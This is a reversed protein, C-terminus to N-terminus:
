KKKIIRKVRKKTDAKSTVDSVRGTFGTYPSSSKNKIGFSCVKKKSGDKMTAHINVAAGSSEASYHRVNKHINDFDTTPNSVKSVGRKADYSARYPKITPQEEADIMRRIFGTKHEHSIKNFSDSYHDALQRHYSKSSDLARHAAARGSGRSVALAKFKAHKDKRSGTGVHAAVHLDVEADHQKILNQVHTHDAHLHKNLDAIGPSRLSPSSGSNSYKLSVGHYHSGHHIVIDSTGKVGKKGTLRELDNPKSTWYVKADGGRVDMEHHKSIHNIIHHAMKRAHIDIQNNLHDGLKRKQKELSIHPPDGSEDSFHHPHHDDPHGQEGSIIHGIHKAVHLEFAKGAADASDTGVHGGASAKAKSENITGNLLKHQACFKIM